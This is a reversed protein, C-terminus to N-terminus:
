PYSGGDVIRKAWRILRRFRTSKERIMVKGALARHLLQKRARDRLEEPIDPEPLLDRGLLASHQAHDIQSLTKSM